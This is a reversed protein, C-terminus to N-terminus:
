SEADGATSALALGLVKPTGAGRRAAGSAVVYPGTRSAWGQV